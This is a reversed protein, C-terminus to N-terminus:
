AAAHGDAVKVVIAREIDGNVADVVVRLEEAAVAGSFVIPQLDLVTPVTLLREPM